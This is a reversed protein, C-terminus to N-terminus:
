GISNWRAGGPATQNRVRVSQAIAVLDGDTCSFVPSRLAHALKLDDFPSVLFSLLAIMDQVELRDLLGGQRSTVFPINAERM